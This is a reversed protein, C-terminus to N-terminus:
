DSGFDGDEGSSSIPGEGYRNAIFGIIFYHTKEM